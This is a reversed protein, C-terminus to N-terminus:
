RSINIEWMFSRSAKGVRSPARQVVQLCDTEICSAEIHTKSFILCVLTKIFSFSLKKRSSKKNAIEGM